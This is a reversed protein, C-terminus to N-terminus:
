HSGSSTTSQRTLDIVVSTPLDGVCSGVANLPKATWRLTNGTVPGIMDAVASCKGGGEATREFSFQGSYSDPGAYGSIGGAWDNSASSWAGDVCSLAQYVVMKITRPAFNASTLTGTWTGAINVAAGGATPDPSPATTGGSKSCGNQLSAVFAFVGFSLVVARRSSIRKRV